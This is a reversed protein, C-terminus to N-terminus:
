SRWLIVQDEAEKMTKFYKPKHGVIKALWKKHYKSYTVGRINSSSKKPNNKVVHINNNKYKEINQPFNLLSKNGNIKFEEIDRMLAADQETNFTGLHLRKNNKHIYSIWGNKVKSVGVYKSSTEPYPVGRRKKGNKISILINEPKKWAKSLKEKVEKPVVYEGNTSFSLINYGLKPNNSNFLKIWLGERINLEKSSYAEDIVIFSFNDKGYKNIAKTIVMNHNKNNKSRSVHESFRNKPNKKTTQGVYKKGNVLNTILYISGYIKNKEM